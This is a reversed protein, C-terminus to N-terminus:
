PQTLPEFLDTLYPQYERWRAVSKDYIPQRVQTISATRVIRDSKYFQLCAEDWDLDLYEILRKSEHQQNAVLEEYRIEIFRGPITDRWHQMIRQYQLIRHVLHEKRCAWRISGFQTMWCSLAIDEPNRQIHIIKAQPFLTLIWGIMSYNDPMKDVIAHVEPKKANDILEGLKDLYQQQIIVLQQQSITSLQEFNSEVSNPIIQHLSQPAFNREGIGLINKHRALIQETLTTGSRPMGVIFVPTINCNNIASCHKFYASDFTKILASIHNEQKRVDYNWGRISKYQWQFDNAQQMHEVAQKYQKSGDYYYAMSNHLSALVGPMRQKSNNLLLKKITNKVEENLEGRQTTALGNLVPICKPNQKLAVSYQRVAGDVDGASSLINGIKAHITTRQPQLKQIKYLLELAAEADGDDWLTDSLCQLVEIRDPEKEHLPKLINLAGILNGL